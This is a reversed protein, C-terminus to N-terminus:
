ASKFRAPAGVAPRAKLAWSGFDPPQYLFIVPKPKYEVSVRTDVYELDTCRILLNSAM